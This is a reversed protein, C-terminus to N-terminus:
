GFSPDRLAAHFGVVILLFLTFQFVLGAMHGILLGLLVSVGFITIKGTLDLQFAAGLAIPEPRWLFLYAAVLLCCAFSVVQIPHLFLFLLLFFTCSLVYNYFFTELNTKVRRFGEGSAPFNFRRFDFFESWPRACGWIEVLRDQLTLDSHLQLPTTYISLDQPQLSSIAEKYWPKKSPMNGRELDDVNNNAPSGFGPVYAKYDGVQKDVSAVSETHLPQYPRIGTPLDGEDSADM